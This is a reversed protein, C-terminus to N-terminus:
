RMLVVAFGVPREDGLQQLSFSSLKLNLFLIAALVATQNPYAVVNRKHRPRLPYRSEYHRQGLVNCLAFTGFFSQLPTLSIQRFSLFQGVRATPNPIHTSVSEEPRLLDKANVVVIGLLHSVASPVKKVSNVGLISWLELPSLFSHLGRMLLPCIRLYIKSNHKWVSGYLVEVRDSM